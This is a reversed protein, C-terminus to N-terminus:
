LLLIWPLVEGGKVSREKLSGAGSNGRGVGELAWFLWDSEM